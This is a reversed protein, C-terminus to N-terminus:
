EDDEPLENECHCKIRQCENLVADFADETPNAEFAELASRLDILMEDIPLSV